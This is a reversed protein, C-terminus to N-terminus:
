LVFTNITKEQYHLLKIYHDDDLVAAKSWPRCGQGDPMNRDAGAAMLYSIAYSNEIGIAEVLPLRGGGDLRNPDAGAEVLYKVMYSNESRIAMILPSLGHTNNIDPNVGAGLLHKVSFSNGTGIAILLLALGEITDLRQENLDLLIKLKGADGDTIAQLLPVFPRAPTQRIMSDPYWLPTFIVLFLENFILIGM